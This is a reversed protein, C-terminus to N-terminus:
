RHCLRRANPRRSEGARQARQDDRDPDDRDHAQQSICQSGTCARDAGLRRSDGGIDWKAIGKADADDAAPQHAGPDGLGDGAGAVVDGSNSGTSALRAPDSARM